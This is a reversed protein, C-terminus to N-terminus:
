GPLDIEESTDPAKFVLGKFFVKSGLMGPATGLDREYGCNGSGIKQQCCILFVKFQRLGGECGLLGGIVQDLSSVIDAEGIFQVEASRLCLYVRRSPVDGEIHM